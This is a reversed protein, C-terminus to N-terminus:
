WTWFLRCSSKIQILHSWGVGDCGTEKCDIKINDGKAKRVLLKYGNIM